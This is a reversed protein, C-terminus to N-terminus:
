SALQYIVPRYTPEPIPKGEADVKKALDPTTPPLHTTEPRVAMTVLCWGIIMVAVTPAFALVVLGAAAVIAGAVTWPHRRGFRSCTRDSLLGIAPNAVLAVAAGFGMVLGLVAEKNAHDLLEAQKPLLVQIPAYVGLWLAINAFFLLSMWGRRIEGRLGVQALHLENRTKFSDVM